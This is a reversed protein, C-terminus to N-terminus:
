KKRKSKAKKTKRTYGNKFDYFATAITVEKVDPRRRRIIQRMTKYDMGKRYKEKVIKAVSMRKAKKKSSM